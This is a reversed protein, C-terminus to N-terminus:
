VAVSTVIVFGIGRATLVAQLHDSAGRYLDEDNTLAKQAGLMGCLPRGELVKTTLRITATAM